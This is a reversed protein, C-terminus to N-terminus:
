DGDSSNNNDDKAAGASGAAVVLEGGEKGGIVPYGHRMRGEDRRLLGADTRLKKTIEAEQVESLRFPIRAFKIARDKNTTTNRLLKMSFEAEIAAMRPSITHEIVINKLEPILPGAISTGEWTLGLLQPPWGFVACIEFATLYRTQHAFENPLRAAKIDTVASPWVAIAGKSEKTSKKYSEVIKEVSGQKMIIHESVHENEKNIRKQAGEAMTIAVAVAYDIPSVAGDPDGLTGFFPGKIHIVGSYDTIEFIDGGLRSLTLRYGYEGTRQQFREANGPLVRELFKPRGTAPDRWIYAVFEGYIEMDETAQRLWQLMNIGPFPQQLMTAVPSNRIRSVRQGDDNVEWLHIPASSIVSSTRTVCSWFISNNIASGRSFKVDRLYEFSDWGVNTGTREGEESVFTRGLNGGILSDFLGMAAIM